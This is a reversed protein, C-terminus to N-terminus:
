IDFSTDSSETVSLDAVDEFELFARTRSVQNIKPANIVKEVESTKVVHLIQLLSWGREKTKSYFNVEVYEEDELFDGVLAPLKKNTGVVLVHDGKKFEVDPAVKKVNEEEQNINQEGFAKM